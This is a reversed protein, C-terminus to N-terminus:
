FIDLQLCYNIEIKHELKLVIFMNLKKTWHSTAYIIDTPYKIM